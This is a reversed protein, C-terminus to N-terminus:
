HTGLGWQEPPKEEILWGWCSECWSTWLMTNRQNSCATLLVTHSRDLSVTTSLRLGKPAPCFLGWFSNKCKIPFCSLRLPTELAPKACKEKCKIPFCSLRLSFLLSALTKACKAQKPLSVCPYGQFSIADRENRGCRVCEMPNMTVKWNRTMQLCNNRAANQWNHGGRAEQCQSWPERWALSELHNPESPQLHLVM